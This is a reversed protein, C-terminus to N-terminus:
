DHQYRSCEFLTPKDGAELQAGCPRVVNGEVAVRMTFTYVGDKLECGKALECVLREMQTIQSSEPQDIVEHCRDLVQGPILAGVKEDPKCAGREFDVQDLLLKLATLANM